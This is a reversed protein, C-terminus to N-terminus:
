WEAKHQIAAFPFSVKKPSIIALRKLSPKLIIFDNVWPNTCWIKKLNIVNLTGSKALNNTFNLLTRIKNRIWKMERFFYDGFFENIIWQANKLYLKWVSNFYVVFMQPSYIGMKDCKLSQVHKFPCVFHEAGRATGECVTGHTYKYTLRISDIKKMTRQKSGDMRKNSKVNILTIYYSYKINYISYTRNFLVRCISVFFLIRFIEFLSGHFEYEPYFIGLSCSIILIRSQM